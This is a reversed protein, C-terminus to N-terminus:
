STSPTKPPNKKANWRDADPCTAHHPLYLLDGAERVHRAAEAGYIIAPQSGDPFYRDLTLRVNGRELDPEANLPMRKGSPTKGWRLPASCSRCLTKM